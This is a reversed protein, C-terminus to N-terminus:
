REIRLAVGFSRPRNVTFTDFPGAPGLGQLLPLMTQGFASIAWREDTVNRGWVTLDARGLPITANLDLWVRAPSVLRNDIEFFTRGEAGVRAQASWGDRSWGLGLNAGWEPVKPVQNGSYDSTAGALFPDPAVWRLVEADALAWASLLEFNAALRSSHTIEIGHVEVRDVNFTVSQGDLFTYNQYDDIRNVFAQGEIRHARDATRWRMGAELSRTTEPEFRARWISNAGPRPNFGGTRFGEGYVAHVVLDPTVRALASVRPQLRTVGASRDDVFVGAARIAQRRSEHDLRLAGTVTWRQGLDRSVTGFVAALTADTRYEPIPAGFLLPGFDDERRRETRQAFVGLNWRLPDGANDDTLRAEGSWVDLTVPQRIPQLGDPFLPLGFFTLPGPRYDLEEIFDKRYDDHALLVDLRARGVAADRGAELAVQLWRRGARGEFDGIPDTLAPCDLVGGFDGIIDGSSAWAAGSAEQMWEVRAGVDWDGLVGGVTARAARQDLADVTRGLTTNRILGDSATWAGALRASWAGPLGVSVAGEATRLNGNGVGLELFDPGNLRARVVVAGGAANRGFVAGQPGRLLEIRAVDFLPLTFLETDALAVGDRVFAIAAQQLRDTTVGRVAIINTGPDQDNIMSFAPSLAIADDIAAAGAGPLDDAVFVESAGASEFAPEVLGRGTVVIEGEAAPTEAHAPQGAVHALGAVLGVLLTAARGPQPV